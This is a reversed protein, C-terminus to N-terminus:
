GSNCSYAFVFCTPLHKNVQLATRRRHHLLAQHWLLVDRSAVKRMGDSSVPSPTTYRGVPPTAASRAGNWIPQTSACSAGNSLPQTSASTAGNWVPQTSASTAGNRVPQTPASSTGNWVPQQQTSPQSWTGSLCVGSASSGSGSFASKGGDSVAAFTRVLTRNSPLQEERVPTM